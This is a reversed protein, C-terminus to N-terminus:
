RRANNARTPPGDRLPGRRIEKFVEADGRAHEAVIAITVTWTRRDPGGEDTARTRRWRM